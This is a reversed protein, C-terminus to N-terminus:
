NKIRITGTTTSPLDQFASCGGRKRVRKVQSTKKTQPTCSITISSYNASFYTNVINHSKAKKRTNSPKGLFHISKQYSQNNQNLSDELKQLQSEGEQSYNGFVMTKTVRMSMKSDTPPQFLKEQTENTKKKLLKSM